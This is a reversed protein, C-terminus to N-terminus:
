MKMFDVTDFKSPQVCVNSEDQEQLDDAVKLLEMQVNHIDADTAGLRTVVEKYKKGM